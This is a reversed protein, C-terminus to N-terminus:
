KRILMKGTASFDGATLTYFYVGSAVQEGLENRGNWYAAQSKSQYVGAAQHGLALTRVLAGNVSYISVTVDTSTALQYPIWTEPNFPNPYNLLLKTEEPVTAHLLRELNAIGLDFIASGDDEVQALDIWGQIKAPTLDASQGVSASLPAEGVQDNANRVEILKVSKGWNPHRAVLILDMVNVFGDNNVDARPNTAAEGLLKIPNEPAKDMKGAVEVLDLIDVMKDRNVDERPYQHTVVVPNSIIHYAIRQHKKGETADLFFLSHSDPVTDVAKVDKEDPSIKASTFNASNSLHVNHLGLAEEAFQKVQFEISLLKGSGTVGEVPDGLVHEGSADKTRGVRAQWTRIKGADMPAYQFAADIDGSALFDGETVEVLQLVAPNYAIDMQWAALDKVNKIEISYTFTGGVALPEDVKPTAVLRTKPDPDAVNFVHVYTADVFAPATVRIGIFGAEHFTVETEVEGARDTIQTTPEVTAVTDDARDLTYVGVVDPDVLKMIGLVEFNITENPHRTGNRRLTITFPTTDGKEYKREIVISEVEAEFSITTQAVSDGALMLVFGICVLTLLISFTKM